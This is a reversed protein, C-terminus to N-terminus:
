TQNQNNNNNTELHESSESTKIGMTHVLTKLMQQAGEKDESELYMKFAKEMLSAQVNVNAGSLGSSIITSFRFVDEKLMEKLADHKSHLYILRTAHGLMEEFFTENYSRIMSQLRTAAESALISLGQATQYKGDSKQLSILPDIGLAEDIDKKLEDIQNETIGVSPAKMVQIANLANVRIISGPGRKIDMPNIGSGIAAIMKPNLAEAISDIQQNKKINIETQLPILGAIPSDGYCAVADTEYSPTIQPLLTGSFIPLGDKLPVFSRLVYKGGMVTSIYWMDGSTSNRDKLSYRTYVDMLEVKSSLRKNVKHKKSENNTIESLAKQFEKSAFVGKRGLEKFKMESLYVRNVVYTSDQFTKANPDFYIDELPIHEIVIGNDWFCKAAVTGYLIGQYFTPTLRTLLASRQLHTNLVRELTKAKQADQPNEPAILALSELNFYTAQFAAAIRKVKTNIIPFFIHSKGREQMNRRSEKDFRGIYNDTIKDFTPKYRAYGRQADEIIGRLDNLNNM